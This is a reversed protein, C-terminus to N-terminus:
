AREGGWGPVQSAVQESEMGACGSTLAPRTSVCRGPCVSGKALRGVRSVPEVHLMQLATMMEPGPGQQAM